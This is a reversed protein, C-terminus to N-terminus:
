AESVRRWRWYMLLVECNSRDREMASVIARTRGLEIAVRHQHIGARLRYILCREGISLCPPGCWPILQLPAAAASREVEAYATRTLGIRDSAEAQTLGMRRRWLFLREGATLGAAGFDDEGFYFKLAPALPFPPRM